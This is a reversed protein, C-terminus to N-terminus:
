ASSPMRSLLGDRPSPSTYLLCTMLDEEPVEGDDTQRHTQELRVQDGDLSWNGSYNVWTNQVFQRCEFSGDSLLDFELVSGSIMRILQNLASQGGVQHPRIKERMVTATPKPDLEWRAIVEVPGEDAGDDDAAEETQDDSVTAVDDQQQEQRAAEKTSGSSCSALLCVLAALGLVIVSHGNNIFVKM